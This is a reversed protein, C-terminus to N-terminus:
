RSFFVHGFPVPHWKMCWPRVPLTHTSLSYAADPIHERNRSQLSECGQFSDLHPLTSASASFPRSPCPDAWAVLRYTVADIPRDNAAMGDLVVASSMHTGQMILSGGSGMPSLTAISAPSGSTSSSVLTSCSSSVGSWRTPRPTGACFARTSSYRSIISASESM